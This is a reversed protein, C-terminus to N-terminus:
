RKTSSRASREQPCVAVLHGAREGNYVEWGKAFSVVRLRGGPTRILASAAPARRGLDNLSCRRDAATRQVVRQYAGEDAPTEDGGPSATGLGSVLVLALLTTLGGAKLVALGLHTGTRV